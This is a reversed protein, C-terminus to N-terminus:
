RAPGRARAGAAGRIRARLCRSRPHRVHGGAAMQARGPLAASEAPPFVGHFERLIARTRRIAVRYDHLFEIDIDSLTGPLNADPVELLAALVRAAALDARDGPELAVAPKSNVGAPDGGAASVAEDHLTREARRLPLSAVLLDYAIRWEEDYGRVGRVFRRPALPKRLGDVVVVPLAVDVRVITKDLEDLLPM